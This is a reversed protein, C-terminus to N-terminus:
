ARVTEVTFGLPPDILSSSATTVSEVMLSGDPRLVIVILSPIVWGHLTQVAGVSELPRRKWCNCKGFPARCRHCPAAIIAKILMQKEASVRTFNVMWQDLRELADRLRENEAKLDRVIALIADSQTDMITDTM